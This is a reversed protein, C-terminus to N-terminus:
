SYSFQSLFTVSTEESVDGQRQENVALEEGSVGFADNSEGQTKPVMYGWHGETEAKTSGSVNRHRAQM